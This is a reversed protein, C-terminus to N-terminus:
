ADLLLSNDSDVDASNNYFVLLLLFDDSDVDASNNYFVLPLLFDVVVLNDNRSMPLMMMMMM